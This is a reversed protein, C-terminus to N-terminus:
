EEFSESRLPYFGCLRRSSLKASSEERRRRPTKATLREESCAQNFGYVEFKIMARDNKEFM